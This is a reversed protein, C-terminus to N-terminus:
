HKYEVLHKYKDRNNLELKSIIKEQTTFAKKNKKHKITHNYFYLNARIDQPIIVLKEDYNNVIINKLNLNMKEKPDIFRIFLRHDKQLVFNADFNYVYKIGKDSFTFHSDKVDIKIILSKKVRQGKKVYVIETIHNDTQANAIWEKKITEQEHKDFKGNKNKDYFSLADVFGERFEWTIEFSTKDKKADINVYADAIPIYETYVACSYVTSTLLFLVSLIKFIFNKLM